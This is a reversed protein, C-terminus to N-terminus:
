PEPLAELAAVVLALGRADDTLHKSWARYVRAHDPREKALELLTRAVVRLTPALREPQV